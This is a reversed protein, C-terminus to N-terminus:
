SNLQRYIQQNAKLVNMKEEGFIGLSRSDTAQEIIKKLDDISLGTTEHLRDLQIKAAKLSIHPDLGSGSATLLDAPIQQKEVTPHQQLFQAVDQEIRKILEPNSPAYNASGSRVGEKNETNKEYINYVIASPRSQFYQDQEFTQGILASGIVQGKEEILSGNAQNKFVIQAVGTTILPYALGCIGMWIITILLAVKLQQWM